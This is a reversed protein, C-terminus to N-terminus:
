PKMGSKRGEKELRKVLGRNYGVKFEDFSRLLDEYIVNSATETSYKSITDVLKDKPYALGVVLGTAVTNTVIEEKSLGRQKGDERVFDFCENYFMNACLESAEEPTLSSVADIIEEKKIQTVM